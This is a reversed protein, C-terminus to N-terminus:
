TRVAQIEADICQCEHALKGCEECPEARLADIHTVDPRRYQLLWDPWSSFKGDDRVAMVRCEPLESRNFTADYEELLAAMRDQWVDPMEHMLVRPMVCFSARSLGFWRWLREYGSERM